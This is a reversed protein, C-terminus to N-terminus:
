QPEASDIPGLRDCCYAAIALSATAAPSPANRLQVIRGEGSFAFDDILAGDRGVAQARIGAFSPELDVATLGGVLRSAERAYASRSLAWALERPAQRRWHWAMRYSGPWSLTSLLDAPSVSWREGGGRAAGRTAAPLATPGVVVDGGIRRTMHVGLFPLAPDPVPYILGRVLEPRRLAFYAGRFPVIRPDASAGSAQALRDSQLGACVIAGRCDTSGQAHVIRAGGSSREIQEVECGTIVAGGRAEVDEALAACVAGYDVIGTDPSHLAAIGSAHPEIERLEAHDLREVRVGNALAREHLRELGPLEAASTAIILKGIPETPVRLEACLKYMAAAGEVCLRAKLSGPQYYIGAHIVGSNHSSQHLAVAQERELVVVSSRPERLLAERAVALGIIGGGVVVLDCSQPAARPRASRISTVAGLSAAEAARNVSPAAKKTVWFHFFYPLHPVRRQLSARRKISKAAAQCVFVFTPPSALPALLWPLSLMM